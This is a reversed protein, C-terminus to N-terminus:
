KKTILEPAHEGVLSIGGPSVAFEATIKALEAEMAAAHESSELYENHFKNQEYWDLTIRERIFDKLLCWLEPTFVGSALIAAQAVDLKAITHAIEEDFKSSSM